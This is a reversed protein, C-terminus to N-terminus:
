AGMSAPVWATLTPTLVRPVFMMMITVMITIDSDSVEKDTEGPRGYKAEMDPHYPDHTIRVGDTRYHEMDGRERQISVQSIISQLFEKLEM